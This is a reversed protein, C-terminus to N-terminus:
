ELVLIKTEQKVLLNLFWFYSSVEKEGESNKTSHQCQM